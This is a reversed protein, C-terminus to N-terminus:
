LTKQSIYEMLSHAKKILLKRVQFAFVINIREGLLIYLILISYIQFKNKQINFFLEEYKM